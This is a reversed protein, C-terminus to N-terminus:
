GEVHARLRELTDDRERSIVDMLRRAELLGKPELLWVSERGDRKGKVLGADAAHSSV